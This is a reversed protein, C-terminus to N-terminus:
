KGYYKKKVQRLYPELQQRQRQDLRDIYLVGNLHDNEHMIVRAEIGSFEKIFVEGKLNMAEVVITEPRYVMGRLKPISLCGENMSVHTDSPSTLKPNIFVQVEGEIWTGEPGEHDICIIFLKLSRHVQPAALGGGDNARMTEYMDQVLTHIEPTIEEIPVTKRRLVPDGYYALPLIM